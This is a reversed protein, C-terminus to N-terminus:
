AAVQESVAAHRKAWLTVCLDWGRCYDGDLHALAIVDLIARRLEPDPWPQVTHATIDDSAARLDGIRIPVIERDWKSPLGLRFVIEGISMNPYLLAHRLLDLRDMAAREATRGRVTGPKDFATVDPNIDNGDDDQDFAMPPLYGLAHARTRTRNIANSRVGCTEPTAVTEGVRAAVTHVLECQADTLGTGDAAYRNVNPIATAGIQEAIWTPPYGLALMCRLRHQANM